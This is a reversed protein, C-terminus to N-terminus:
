LKPKWKPDLSLGLGFVWVLYGQGLLNAWNGNGKSSVDSMWTAILSIVKTGCTARCLEVSFGCIGLFLSLRMWNFQKKLQNM